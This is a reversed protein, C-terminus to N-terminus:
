YWESVAVGIQVTVSDAGLLAALEDLEMADIKDQMCDPCIMQDEWYYVREGEYVEHGCDATYYMDDQPDRYMM